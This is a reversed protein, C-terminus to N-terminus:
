SVCEVLDRQELASANTGVGSALAQELSAVCRSGSPALIPEQLCSAGMACTKLIVQLPEATNTCGTCEGFGTGDSSCTYKGTIGLPCACPLVSGPMCTQAPPASGCGALLM